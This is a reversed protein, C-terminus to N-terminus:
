EDDLEEIPTGFGSMIEFRRPPHLNLDARCVGCDCILLKLNGSRVSKKNKFSGYDSVQFKYFNHGFFFHKIRMWM